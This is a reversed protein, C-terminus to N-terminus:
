SLLLQNSPWLLDPSSGQISNPIILTQEMKNSGSLIFATSHLWYPSHTSFVQLVLPTLCWHFVVHQTDLWVGPVMCCICRGVCLGWPKRHLAAAKPSCTPKKVTCRESGTACCGKVDCGATGLYMAWTCGERHSPCLAPPSLPIKVKQTSLSLWGGLGSSLDHWHWRTQFLRVCPLVFLVRHNLFCMCHRAPPNCHSMWKHLGTFTRRLWYVQLASNICAESKSALRPPAQMTQRIQSISCGHGQWSAPHANAYSAAKNKCPIACLTIDVWPSCSGPRLVDYIAM